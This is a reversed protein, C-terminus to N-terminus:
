GARRAAIPAGELCRTLDAALEAASQYRQSRDRELARAVVTEIDGKLSPDLSGLRPADDECIM